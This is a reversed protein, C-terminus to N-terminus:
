ESIILHPYCIYAIHLQLLYKNITSMNIKRTDMHQSPFICINRNVIHKLPHDHYSVYGTEQCINEM